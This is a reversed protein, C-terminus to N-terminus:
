VESLAMRLGLLEVAHSSTASLMGMSERCRAVGLGM